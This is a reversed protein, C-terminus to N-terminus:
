EALPAETEDIRYSTLNYQVAKTLYNAEDETLETMFKGPTFETELVLPEACAITGWFNFMVGEEITVPMPTEEDNDRISYYNFGEKQVAKTVRSDCVYCPKGRFIVKKM